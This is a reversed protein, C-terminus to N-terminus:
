SGVTVIYFCGADYRQGESLIWDDAHPPGTVGGPWRLIVSYAGSRVRIIRRPVASCTRPKSGYSYKKCSRCASVHIRRVDPGSLLLELPYPASNQITVEAGGRWTSGVAVPSGLDRTRGSRIKAVQATVRGREAAALGRRASAVLRDGPSEDLVRRYNARARVYRGAGLHEAACRQLTRALQRRAWPGWLLTSRLSDAFDAGVCPRSVSASDIKTRMAGASSAARKALWQGRFEVYVADVIDAARWLTVANGTSLAQDVLAAAERLREEAASATSTSTPKSATPSSRGSSKAASATPAADPESGDAVSIMYLGGLAAVAAAVAIVVRRRPSPGGVILPSFPSRRRSLPTSLTGAHSQSSSPRRSSSRVTDGVVPEEPPSQDHVRLSAQEIERRLAEVQGDLAESITRKASAVADPRLRASAGRAIELLHRRDDDDQAYDAALELHAAAEARRRRATAWHALNQHYTGAATAQDRALDKLAEATRGLSLAVRAFLYATEWDELVNYARVGLGRVEAAVKDGLAPECIPDVRRLREYGALVESVLVTRARKFADRNAVSDGASASLTGRIRNVEEIGAEIQARVPSVARRAAAEVDSEPMGSRRIARVAVSARAVESADLFSSARDGVPGLTAAPLDRRLGGLFSETLRADHAQHAREALYVWFEDSVWVDAWSTLASAEDASRGNEVGHAYRVVALDHLAIAQERTVGRGAVAQLRTVAAGVEVDSTLDIKPDVVDPPSHLWYLEARLREVPDDLTQRIQSLAEPGLVAGRGLSSLVAFEEIVRRTERATATAPLGLARFANPLILAM